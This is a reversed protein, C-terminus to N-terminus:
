DIVEVPGAAAAETEPSAWSITEVDSTVNSSEGPVTFAPQYDESTHPLFPNWDTPPQERWHQFSWSNEDSAPASSELDAPAEAPATEWTPETSAAEHEAEEGGPEAAASRSRHASSRSTRRRRHPRASSAENQANEDAAAAQEPQSNQ